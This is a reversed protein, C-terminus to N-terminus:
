QAAAREQMKKAHRVRLLKFTLVGIGVLEAFLLVALLIVAAFFHDGTVM